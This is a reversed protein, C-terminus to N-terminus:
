KGNTDSKGGERPDRFGPLLAARTRMFTNRFTARPNVGEIRPHDKEWEKVLEQWHFQENEATHQLAFRFMELSEPQPTRAKSGRAYRWFDALDEPQVWPQVHLTLSSNAKFASTQGNEATTRLTPEYPRRGTLIPSLVPPKDTLLFELLQWTDTPFHNLLRGVITVAWGAITGKYGEVWQSRVWPHHKFWPPQTPHSLNPRGKGCRATLPQYTEFTNGGICVYSNTSHTVTWGDVHDKAEGELLPYAEVIYDHLLNKTDEPDPHINASLGAIGLFSLDLGNSQGSVQGQTSKPSLGMEKFNEVSLVKVMPSTIFLWAKELGEETSDFVVEQLAERRFRQLEADQRLYRSLLTAAAEALAPMNTRGLANLEELDMGTKRIEELDYKRTIMGTWDERNSPFTGEYDGRRAEGQNPNSFQKPLAANLDYSSRTFPILATNIRDISDQIEDDERYNVREKGPFTKQVFNIVEDMHKRLSPQQWLEAPVDQDFGRETRRRRNVERQIEFRIEAASKGV